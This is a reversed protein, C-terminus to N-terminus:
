TEDEKSRMEWWKGYLIKIYDRLEEYEISLNKYKIKATAMDILTDYNTSPHFSERYEYSNYIYYEDVLNPGICTILGLINEPIKIFEKNERSTGYLNIKKEKIHYLFDVTKPAFELSDQENLSFIVDGSDREFSISSLSPSGYTKIQSRIYDIKYEEYFNIAQTLSIYQTKM